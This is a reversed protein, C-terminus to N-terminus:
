NKGLQNRIAINCNELFIDVKDIPIKTGAAPPHGGGLVDLDSQECADRIAQSLNLGRNVISEHARGSVKYVDEDPRKVLGFIPKSKDVGKVHEFILMSTITGIINEPIVDEGFFYQISDKEQIKNNEQIWSLGQVLVRKYNNLAEKSQQYIEKRNGMAIAIGISSSHTRGCANLLKSFEKADHLESSPAEEKLIYRNVILKKIIKKPEMDLKISAYEIIASSIIQKEDKNLESLSKVNGESGEMLIGLTKLFILSRNVDKSLGPLNLEKSYAIAENLPQLSPFNLDNVVEVFGSNVADELIWTNLGLFSKNLGQNQLDGIAGVIALPSLDINLQNLTKAFYYCLGAGSIENSGDIGYFYPNIQWNKTNEYIEEILKVEEKNSINQPIHHDLILFSNFEAKNVLENQLELYQGSGFDSFILFNEYDQVKKFIKSIEKKELQRLVTIQFPIKERYLAKGLIAGSSLGDADLHTYINIPTNREKFHKLLTNKVLKLDILLKTLREKESAM